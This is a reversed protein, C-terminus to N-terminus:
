QQVNGAIPQHGGQMIMKNALEFQRSARRRRIMSASLVSAPGAAARKRAEEDEIVTKARDLKSLVQPLSHEMRQIIDCSSALEGQVREDIWCDAMNKDKEILAKADDENAPPSMDVAPFAAKLKGPFQHRLKIMESLM